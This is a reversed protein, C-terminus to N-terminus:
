TRRSCSRGSPPCWSYMEQRSVSAACARRRRRALVHGERGRDAQDESTSSIQAGLDRGGELDRDQRLSREGVDSRRSPPRRGPWVIDCIGVM